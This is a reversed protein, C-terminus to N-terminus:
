VAIRGDRATDRAFQVELTALHMVAHGDGIRIRAPALDYHFRALRLQCLFCCPFVHIIGLNVGTVSVTHVTADLFRSLDDRVDDSELFSILHQHDM